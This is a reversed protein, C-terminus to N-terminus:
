ATCDDQKSSALPHADGTTSFFSETLFNTRMALDTSENFTNKQGLIVTYVAKLDYKCYITTM